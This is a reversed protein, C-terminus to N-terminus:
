GKFNMTVGLINLLLSFEYTKIIQSEMLAYNGLLQPSM